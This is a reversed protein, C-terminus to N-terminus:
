EIVALISSESILYYEKDDVKIEDPSYKSFIVNDGVKVTMPVLVGDDYKGPGVALVKGQHPKEKDITEPIIIGSKSVSEESPDRPAVLVRDGLPKINSM